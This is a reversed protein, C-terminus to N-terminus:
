MLMGKAQSSVCQRQWSTPWRITSAGGLILVLHIVFVFLEKCSRKGETLRLRKSGCVSNLLLSESVDVNLHVDVWSGQVSLLQDEPNGM